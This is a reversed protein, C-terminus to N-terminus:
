QRRGAATAKRGHDESGRWQSFRDGLTPWQVPKEVRPPPTPEHYARPSRPAREQDDGATRAQRPDAYRSTAGGLLTSFQVVNSAERQADYQDVLANMSADIDDMLKYAEDIRQGLSLLIQAGHANIDRIATDIAGVAYGTEAFVREYQRHYLRLLRLQRYVLAIGIGAAIVAILLVGDILYSIM